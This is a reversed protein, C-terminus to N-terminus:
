GHFGRTACLGIEADGASVGVMKNIGVFHNETVGWGAAKLALDFHETRTETENM